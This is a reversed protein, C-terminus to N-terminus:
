PQCEVTVSHTHGGIQDGRRRQGTTVVVRGTARLVDVDAASLSLDHSHRDESFDGAPGTVELDTWEDPFAFLQAVTNVELDASKHTHTYGGPAETSVRVRPPKSVDCVRVAGMTGLQPKLTATKVGSESAAAAVALLALLTFPDM